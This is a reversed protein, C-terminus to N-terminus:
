MNIRRLRRKTLYTKLGKVRIHWRNGVKIAPLIGRRALLGLYGPDLGYKKAAEALSVVADEGSQHRITILYANMTTLLEQAM